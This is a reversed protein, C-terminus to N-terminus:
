KVKSARFKKLASDISDQGAGASKMTNVLDQEQESLKQENTRRVSINSNIGEDSNSLRAVEASLEEVQKRLESVKDSDDTNPKASLRRDLEAIAKEPGDAQSLYEPHERTIAELMQVKKIPEALAQKIQDDTRGQAKLAEAKAKINLDPHRIFVKKLSDQQKKVLDEATVQRYDITKERERRLNRRNIWDTVAVADELYWDDLEEKPMERREERPKDKDEDLYLKARDTELKSLKSRVDPEPSKKLSENEAKLADLEMRLMQAEQTSKDQTAKLESNIEDIRKQTKEQIRKIKDDASLKSEEEEQKKKDDEQRQKQVDDARKREEETREEEKKALIADDEAKKAEAKAQDEKAKKSADEQSKKQEETMVSSKEQKLINDLEVKAKDKTLEQPM